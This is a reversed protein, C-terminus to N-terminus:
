EGGGGGGGRPKRKNRPDEEDHVYQIVAPGEGKEEIVVATRAWGFYAKGAEINLVSGVKFEDMQRWNYDNGPTFWYIGKLVTIERATNYVRPAWKMGSPARYRVVYPGPEAPNGSVIAMEIPRAIGPVYKWELSDDGEAAFAAPLAALALVGAATAHTLARIM